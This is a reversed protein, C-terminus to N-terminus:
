WSGGAGGGKVQKQSNVFEARQNRFNSYRNSYVSDRNSVKAAEKLSFFLKQGLTLHQSQRNKARFYITLAVICLVIIFISTYTIISIYNM